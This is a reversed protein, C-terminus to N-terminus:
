TEQAATLGRIMPPIHRYIVGAIEEPTDMPNSKLWQILLNMMAGSLLYLTYRELSRHHMDGLLDGAFYNIEELVLTGFGRDYLLLINERHTAISELRTTMKEPTMGDMFSGSPGQRIRGLYSRPVEELSSFNRYFTAKAVGATRILETVTIQSFPKEGLLKFFAEEMAIRAQVHAQQVTNM